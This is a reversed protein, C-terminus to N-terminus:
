NEALSCICKLKKILWVYIRYMDSKVTPTLYIAHNLFVLL